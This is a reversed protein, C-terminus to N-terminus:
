LPLSRKPSDGFGARSDRASGLIRPQELHRLLDRRKM